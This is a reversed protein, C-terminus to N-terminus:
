LMAKNSILLVPFRFDRTIKEAVNGKDLKCISGFNVKQCIESPSLSFCISKMYHTGSYAVGCFITCLHPPMDEREFAASVKLPNLLLQPRRLTFDRSYHHFDKGCTLRVFQLSDCIMCDGRTVSLSFKLLDVCTGTLENRTM